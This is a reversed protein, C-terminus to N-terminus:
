GRAGARLRALYRSTRPPLSPPHLLLHSPSKSFSPQSSTKYAAKATMNNASKATLLHLSRTSPLPARSSSLPPRPLSRPPRRAEKTLLAM